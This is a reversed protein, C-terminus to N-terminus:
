YIINVCILYLRRVKADVKFTPTCQILDPPAAPTDVASPPGTTHTDSVAPDIDSCLLSQPISFSHSDEDKVVFGHFGCDSLVYEYINLNRKIGAAKTIYYCKAPKFTRLDCNFLGYFAQSESALRWIYHLASLSIM